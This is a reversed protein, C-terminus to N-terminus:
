KEFAQQKVGAAGGGINRRLTDARHAHPWGSACWHARTCVTPWEAAFFGAGLSVGLLLLLMLYVRLTRVARHYRTRSAPIASAAVRRADRHTAYAGRYSRAIGRRM